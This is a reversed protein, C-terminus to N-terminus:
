NIPQYSPPPFNHDTLILYAYVMGILFIYELSNPYRLFVLDNSMFLLFKINKM